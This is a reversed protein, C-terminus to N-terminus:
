LWVQYPINKLSCVFIIYNKYFLLLYNAIGSVLYEDDIHLAVSPVMELAKPVHCPCSWTVCDHM